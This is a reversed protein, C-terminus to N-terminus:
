LSGYFEGMSEKTIIENSPISDPLDGRADKWPAENHSLERLDYPEMDGYDKLVINITDKEDCSLNSSNGSVEDSSVAFKGKHEKFLEPCVPGNSWAEFDENFIPQETWAIAWAQSYYCLKQLKWTSIRGKKELIYRAVDFVSAMKRVGKDDMYTKKRRDTVKYYWMTRMKAVIQKFFKRFRRNLHLKQLNIIVEESKFEVM